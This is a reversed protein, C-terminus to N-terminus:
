GLAYLTGFVVFLTVVTADFFWGLHYTDRFRSTQREPKKYALAIKARPTLKRREM